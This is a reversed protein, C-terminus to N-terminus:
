HGQARSAEWMIPSSRASVWRVSKKATHVGFACSFEQGTRLAAQWDKIVSELDTPQIARAWGMGVSEGLTTGFIARARPNCYTCRGDNDLLLIGVPSCENLKRFLEESDLLAQQAALKEMRLRQRGLAREVAPRLRT